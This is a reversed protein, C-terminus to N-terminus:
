RDLRWALRDYRRLAAGISREGTRLLARLALPEWPWSSWRDRFRRRPETHAPVASRLLLPLEPLRVGAFAVPPKEDFDGVGSELVV